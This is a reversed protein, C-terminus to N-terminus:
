GVFALLEEDAADIEGPVRGRPILHDAALEQEVFPVHHVHVEPVHADQAQVLKPIEVHQLLFIGGLNRPVRIGIGHVNRELHLLAPLISDTQVAANGADRAAEHSEIIGGVVEQPQALRKGEALLNARSQRTSGRWCFTLKPNGSGYRSSRGMWVPTMTYRRRNLKSWARSAEMRAPDFRM